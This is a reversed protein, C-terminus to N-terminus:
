EAHTFMTSVGFFVNTTIKLIFKCQRLIIEILHIAINEISDIQSSVFITGAFIVISAILCIWVNITFPRFVIGYRNVLGPKPSM